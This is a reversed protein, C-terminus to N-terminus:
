VYIYTDDDRPNMVLLDIFDPLDDSSETYCVPKAVEHMGCTGLILFAAEVVDRDGDAGVRRRVEVELLLTRLLLLQTLSSAM